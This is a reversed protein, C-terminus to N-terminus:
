VKPGADKIEDSVTSEYQKFNEIFRHALDKAKADYANQDKWTSRPNLLAPEAGECTNPVQVGFVPHPTTKVGDLKGSLAARVLARTLQIKMRSGVGFPGGSWGTNVLWCKVDHQRVKKALMDAYVSPPLALFPAGFCTSFTAQPESGMGKETGAVKATYGSLFHYSAQAATLKAIPPLVGFADCTLMLINRPHGGMSPFVINPIHRVPYAGRTNETLSDDELNLRRTEADLMVNELVTGFKRTAEYIDPEAEKSLRIMKAYCGGEFNFVGNDSWGHEDDGILRRDKDASLTTKGTGSLGFFLAVDDDSGVNASCHMSLVDKLPLLYNMFTFVSKKIEGAYATGGILVVRRGFNVIIFVESRTGDLDPIAHFRPQAIVTFEPVHKKVQERDRIQIFMNRAFMSQWADETIVRIPLQYDPDAGVLCDQVFVDRTQVYAILRRYMADFKAEDYPQNVKSWWIKEQSSPEKVIFKDNPSRGTHHGTRVVLPGLHALQGERRRIVEEYLRPTSLNWHVTGLNIFGHRDLGYDPAQGVM